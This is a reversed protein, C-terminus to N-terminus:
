LLALSPSAFNPDSDQSQWLGGICASACRGEGLEGRYVVVFYNRVVYSKYLVYVMQKPFITLSSIFFIPHKALSISFVEAFWRAFHIAAMQM